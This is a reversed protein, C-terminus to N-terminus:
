VILNDFNFRKKLLSKMKGQDSDNKSNEICQKYYLRLM